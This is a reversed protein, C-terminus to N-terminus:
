NFLKSKKTTRIKDVMVAIVAQIFKDESKEANNIEYTPYLAMKNYVKAILETQSMLNLNEVIDGLIELIQKAQETNM